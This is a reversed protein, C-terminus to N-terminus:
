TYSLNLKAQELAARAAAVEARATESQARQVDLEQQSTVNRRFLETTRALNAEALQHAAQAKELNAEAEHLASEFPAQEIVFLLDGEDVIQGDEFEISQLYGNVRARLDVTATSRMTGTFEITDALEREVPTSVTVEPAPPPVFVNREGCGMIGSLM